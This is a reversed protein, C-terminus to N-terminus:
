VVGGPVSGSHSRAEFSDPRSAAADVTVREYRLASTDVTSGKFLFPQPQVDYGARLGVAKAADFLAQDDKVADLLTGYLSVDWDSLFPENGNHPLPTMLCQAAETVLEPTLYPRLHEDQAAITMLKALSFKARLAREGPSWNGLPQPDTICAQLDHQAMTLHEFGVRALKTRKTSDQDAVARFVGLFNAIESGRVGHYTDTEGDGVQRTALQRVGETVINPSVTALLHSLGYGELDLGLRTVLNVRSGDYFEGFSESVLDGVNEAIASQIAPVFQPYKEALVFLFHDNHVYVGNGPEKTIEAAVSRVLEDDIVLPLLDTHDLLFHPIGNRFKLHSKITEAHAKFYDPRAALLEIVDYLRYTNLFYEINSNYKSATAPTGMKAEQDLFWLALEKEGQGHFLHELAGGFTTIPKGSHTVRPMGADTTM